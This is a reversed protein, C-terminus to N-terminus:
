ILAEEDSKDPLCRLQFLEHLGDATYTGEAPIGLVLLDCIAGAEDRVKLYAESCIRKLRAIQEPGFIGWVDRAAGCM